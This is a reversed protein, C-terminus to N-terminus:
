DAVCRAVPAFVRAPSERRTLVEGRAGPALRLTQTPRPDVDTAIECRVAFECRNHVAVVHDYGYAGLRPAAQVEVCSPRADDGRAPEDGQAPGPTAVAVAVGLLAGVAWPSLFSAARM